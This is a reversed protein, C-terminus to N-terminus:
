VFRQALAFLALAAVIVFFVAALRRVWRDPTVERSMRLEDDMADIGACVFDIMLM